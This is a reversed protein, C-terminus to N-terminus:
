RPAGGTRTQLPDGPNPLRRVDAGGRTPRRSTAASGSAALNSGYAAYWVLHHRCRGARAGGARGPRAGAEDLLAAEAAPVAGLGAGTSGVATLGVRGCETLCSMMHLVVGTQRAQDFHLRQRAVIDFLDDVRLGKLADAELHDTAVLHKHDGGATRFM